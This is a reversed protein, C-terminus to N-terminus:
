SAGRVVTLGAGLFTPWGRNSEDPFIVTSPRNAFRAYFHLSPSAGRCYNPYVFFTELLITRGHGTSAYLNRALCLSELDAFISNFYRHAGAVLRHMAQTNACENSRNEWCDLLAGNVVQAGSSTLSWRWWSRNPKQLPTHLLEPELGTLRKGLKGKSESSVTEHHIPRNGAM